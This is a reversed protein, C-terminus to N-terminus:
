IPLDGFKVVLLPLVDRLHPLLALSHFMNSIDLYLGQITGDEHLIRSFKQQNLSTQHM